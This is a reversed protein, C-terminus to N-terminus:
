PRGPAAGLHGRVRGDHGGGAGGPRRGTLARDATGRRAATRRERPRGRGPTCPARGRPATGIWDIAERLAQGLATEAGDFRHDRAELVWLRKPQAARDIVRQAEALPVFEDHTAHIAAVPTPAVRAIVDATSFTPEDPLGKTVYIDSARFRWGLESRDPLGLAVVGTTHAKVAADTAALVGLAAGASVGVLLPRQPRGQAAYDLLA